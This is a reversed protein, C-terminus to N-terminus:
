PEFPISDDENAAIITELLLVADPAAMTKLNDLKGDLEAAVMKSSVGNAKAHAWFVTWDIEGEPTIMPPTGSKAAPSAGTNPMAILKDVKSYTQGDKGHNDIIQVLARRGVLEDLDVEDGIAPRMGLAQNWENLKSLPSLNHNAIADILMQEGDQNTMGELAFTFRIVNSTGYSASTLVDPVPAPEVVTVPYTGPKVHIGPVGSSKM